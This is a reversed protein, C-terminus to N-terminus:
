RLRSEIRYLADRIERLLEASAPDSTVTTGGDTEATRPASPPSSPAARPDPPEVTGCQSLVRRRFEKIDVLGLLQADSGGQPNNQGATEVSLSSLGLAHLLPGGRLTLDQIRQLPITKQVTFLVGREVILSRETLACRLAAYHRSAWYQGIGLLWFPLLVIGVVSILMYFSSALLLYTRLRPDFSAEVLVRGTGDDVGDAM